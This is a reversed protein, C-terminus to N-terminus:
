HSDQPTQQNRIGRVCTRERIHRPYCNFFLINPIDLTIRGTYLWGHGEVQEYYSHTDLHYLVYAFNIRVFHVLRTLSDM